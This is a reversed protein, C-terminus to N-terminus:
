THCDRISLPTAAPHGAGFALYLRLYEPRESATIIAPQESVGAPIDLCLCPVDPVSEGRPTRVEDAPMGHRDRRVHHSLPDGHEKRDFALGGASSNRPFLPIENFPNPFHTPYRTDNARNFIRFSQDLLM